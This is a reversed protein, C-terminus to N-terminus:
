RRRRVRFRLRETSSVNGAADTITLRAQYLGPSLRRGAVRGNWVIENRGALVERRIEGVKKWAKCRRQRLLRRYAAPSGASRRLRRLRARTQPVCRRRGRQRVKLGKVRKHFTLTARGAESSNFSFTTGVGPALTRSGAAFGGVSPDTTDSGSGGPGGGPGGPTGTGGSGSPEPQPDIPVVRIAAGTTRWAAFGSGAAGAEVVPDLFSERLALNAPALFTAGGDDSRTYRLRGGDHLTRWVVHIRNGADQSHHPFDLGNDDVASDGQVYVPGGFTDTGPNFARLGVRVDSVSFASLYSLLVGNGGSSLRTEENDPEPSTLTRQVSWNGITNLEGAAIPDADTDTFVRYRVSGLDNVAYVAKDGGPVPAAAPSFVFGAGGLTIPAGIGPGPALGQFQGGSVGLGVGEASLYASQGAFSLDGVDAAGGFNVGNDASTWRFVDHSVDGTPCQTCSALVVVSTGFAFIQADGTFDASPSGPPSTLTTSEADCSSGAAPVRCYRVADTAGAEDIWVLHGTGDTSVALDHGTGSGATFPTAAAAPAATALAAAATAALVLATRRTM